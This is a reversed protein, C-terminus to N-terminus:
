TSQLLCFLYFVIKYKTIACPNTSYLHVQCREGIEYHDKKVGWERPIPKKEKETKINNQIFMPNNAYINPEANISNNLTATSQFSQNDDNNHNSKKTKSKINKASDFAKEQKKLILNETVNIVEELDKKLNILNDNHPQQTLLQKVKKLQQKSKLLKSRYEDLNDM